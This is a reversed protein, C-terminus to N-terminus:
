FTNIHIQVDQLLSVTYACLTNKWGCYIPIHTSIHWSYRPNYLCCSLRKTRVKHGQIFIRMRPDIYLVAAYARFSRREPKSNWFCVVLKVQTFCHCLYFIYFSLIIHIYVCIHIIHVWVGELPTGAMLIDQHDTQVDLEPERNDMLKLNYVIVLTGVFCTKYVQNLNLFMCGLSLLTFQSHQWWVVPERLKRSSSSSSNRVRSHLTNSSSSQRLQMSRLTKLLLSSPRWIGVPCHFLLRCKYTITENYPYSSLCSTKEYETYENNEILKVQGHFYINTVRVNVVCCCWSLHKKGWGTGGGRSFYSVFIFM